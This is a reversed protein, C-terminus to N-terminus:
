KELSTLLAGSVEMAAEGEGKEWEQEDEEEGEREEGEAIATDTATKKKKTKPSLKKPCNSRPLITSSFSQYTYM